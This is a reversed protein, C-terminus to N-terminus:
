FRRLVREFEENTMNFIDKNTLFGICHSETFGGSMNIYWGYEILQMVRNFYRIIKKM